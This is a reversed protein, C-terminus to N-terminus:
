YELEPYDAKFYKARFHYIDGKTLAVKKWKVERMFKIFLDKITPDELALLCIRRLLRIREKMDNLMEAHEMMQLGRKFVWIPGFLRIPWDLWKVLWQVRFRYADDEQLIFCLYDRLPYTKPPAVKTWARHIERVSPTMRQPPLFEYKLKKAIEAISGFLRNKIEQIIQSKDKGKELAYWSDNFIQNKIEHKLVSLPPYQENAGAILLHGRPFTPFPYKEGEMKMILSGDKSKTIKAAVAETSKWYDVMPVKEPTMGILKYWIKLLNRKIM